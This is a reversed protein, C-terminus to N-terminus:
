PGMIGLRVEIYEVLFDRETEFEGISVQSEGSFERSTEFKMEYVTGGSRAVLVYMTSGVDTTGHSFHSEDAVRADGSTEQDIAIDDIRAIRSEFDAAAEDAASDGDEAVVFASYDFDLTWRANPSSAPIVIWECSDSVVRPVAGEGPDDYSGGADSRTQAGEAGPITRGCLDIAGDPISDKPKVTQDPVVSQGGDGAVDNTIGSSLGGLFLSLVGVIVGFVGFAALTGCGFVALAARWGHLGKKVPKGRKSDTEETEVM